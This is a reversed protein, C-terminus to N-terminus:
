IHSHRRRRERKELGSHHNSFVIKQEIRVNPVVDLFTFIKFLTESHKNLLDESKLIFIQERPFLDFLKRVQRSYFGRDQYSFVRHKKFKTEPNILRRIKELRVAMYFPLNERARKKEMVYQSFAREAPDRLLLILKIDPNYRRIRLLANEWYIYIPTAEGSIQGDSCEFNEHYPTYDVADTM